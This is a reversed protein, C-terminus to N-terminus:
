LRLELFVEIVGISVILVHQLALLIELLLLLSINSLEFLPDILLFLLNLLAVLLLAHGLLLLFSKELVEFTLELRKVAGVVDFRLTLHEEHLLLEGQTLLLNLTSLLESVLELSLFLLFGGCSDLLLEAAEELLLARDVEVLIDVIVRLQHLTQSGPLNRLSGILLLEISLLNGFALDVEILCLRLDHDKLKKLSLLHKFLNAPLDLLKSTWCLM